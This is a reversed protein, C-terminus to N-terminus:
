IRKLSFIQLITYNHLIKGPYSWLNLTKLFVALGHSVVLVKGHPFQDHIENAAQAMRVAVETVSEGGPARTSAPDSAGRAFDVAYKEKVEDLSMGEWVGQNIERLRRDSNVPLNLKNAIILATRAARSLDSTYIADFQFSSLEEALFAAQELGIQNLPIDAQGQYRRAINWDTQGHRVLWMETM